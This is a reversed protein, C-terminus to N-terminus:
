IHDNVGVDAEIYWDFKYSPQKGVVSLTFKPPGSSLDETIVVEEDFTLYIQNEKNILRISPTPSKVYHCTDAM